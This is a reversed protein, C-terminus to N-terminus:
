EPARTTAFGSDLEESIVFGESNRTGAKVEAPGPIVTM